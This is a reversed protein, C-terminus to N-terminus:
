LSWAVTAGFRCVLSYIRCYDPVCEERILMLAGSIGLCTVNSGLGFMYVFISDRLCLARPSLKRIWSPHRAGATARRPPAAVGGHVILPIKRSRSRPLSSHNGHKPNSSPQHHAKHPQGVREFTGPVGLPPPIRRQRPTTAGCRPLAAWWCGV